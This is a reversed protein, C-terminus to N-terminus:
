LICLLCLLYRIFAVENDYKITCLRWMPLNILTAIHGSVIVAVYRKIKNRSNGFNLQMWVFILHFECYM